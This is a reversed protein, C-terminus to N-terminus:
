CSSAVMEAMAALGELVQGQETVAMVVPGPAQAFPMRPLPVRFPKMCSSFLDGVRGVLEVVAAGTEVLRPAVMGVMQAWQPFRGPLRQAAGQSQKRPCFCSAAVQPDAELVGAQPAM